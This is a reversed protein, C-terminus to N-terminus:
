IQQQAPLTGGLTYFFNLLAPSATISPTAGVVMTIGVSASDNTTTSQFLITGTYTGAGPVLSPNVGINVPSGNTTGSLRDPIIWPNGDKTTASINYTLQAGSSIVTIQCSAPGNQIPCGQPTGFTAGAQANFTMSTPTASLQSNGGVTANVTVTQQISFSASSYVIFSGVSGGSPLQSTDISVSLDGPLSPIAGPSVKIWQSNAAIQVGVTSVNTGTVHVTCTNAGNCGGVLTNAAGSFNLTQPSVTISQGSATDSLSLAAVAILAGSLVVGRHKERNMKNGRM